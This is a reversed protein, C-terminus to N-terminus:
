DLITEGMDGTLTRGLWVSYQVVVPQDLLLRKRLAAEGEASLGYGSNAYLLLPDGAARSIFFVALTALVISFLAFVFRRLIFRRM